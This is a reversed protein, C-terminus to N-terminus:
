NPDSPMKVTLYSHMETCKEKLSDIDCGAQYAIGSKFPSLAKYVNLTKEEKKKKKSVPRTKTEPMFTCIKENLEKQSQIKKELKKKKKQMFVQGKEYMDRALDPEFAKEQIAPCPLDAKSIAFQSLSNCKSYDIKKPHILLTKSSKSHEKISSVYSSKTSSPSTLLQSVRSIKPSTQMEKLKEYNSKLKLTDLRVRMVNVRGTRPELSPDNFIKLDDLCIKINPVDEEPEQSDM